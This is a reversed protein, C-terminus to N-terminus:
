KRRPAKKVRRCWVEVPHKKSLQIEKLKWGDPGIANWKKTWYEYVVNQQKVRKFGPAVTIEPSKVKSTTKTATKATKAAM